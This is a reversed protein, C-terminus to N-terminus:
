PTMRYFRWVDQGVALSDTKGCGSREALDTVREPRMLTADPEPDAGVPGRPLCSLASAVALSRLVRDGPMMLTEAAAGDMAIVTGDPVDGRVYAASSRRGRFTTYARSTPVGRR